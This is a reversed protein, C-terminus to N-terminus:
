AVPRGEDALRSAAAAGIVQPTLAVAALGLGVLPPWVGPGILLLGGGLALLRSVVNLRRLAFGRVGLAILTAGVLATCVALASQWM